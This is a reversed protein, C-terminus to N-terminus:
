IQYNIRQQVVLLFLDRAPLPGALSRQILMLLFIVREVYDGRKYVDNAMLLVGFIKNLLERMRSSFAKRIMGHNTGENNHFTFTKGHNGVKDIIQVVVKENSM